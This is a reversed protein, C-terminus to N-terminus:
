DWLMGLHDAVWHLAQKADQKILDSALGNNEEEAYLVLATGATHLQEVWEDHTYCQPYTTAKVSFDLLASGLQEALDTDLNICDLM